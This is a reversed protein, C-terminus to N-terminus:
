EKGLKMLQEVIYGIAEHMPGPVSFGAAKKHGGGGFHKAFRSVDTDDRTTRFSGKIAGDPMEKLIMAARGESLNNMFNAIGEVESEAVNHKNLDEQTVYTYVVDLEKHHALRSLTVGWLKLGKVSKDKLIAQKIRDINGGKQMLKSGILLSSKSTAANTFHDTDTVLGTLLCTAMETNIAINNYMFFRYLVATTSSETTDVMNEHGFFENTNHHDFNIIIPKRPLNKIQEAIGAYRLDGSDFVMVLDIEPNTWVSEDQTVLQVHPLYLLKPSIGTKCYASHPKKCHKLWEICATVSGLTDGDPNQHPVLLIHKAAIIHRYIKKAIINM